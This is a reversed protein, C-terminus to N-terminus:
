GGTHHRKLSQGSNIKCASGCFWNKGGVPLTEVCTLHFQETGILDISPVCVVDVFSM